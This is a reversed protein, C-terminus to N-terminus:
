LQTDPHKLHHNTKHKKLELLSIYSYTIFFIDNTFKLNARQSSQHQM